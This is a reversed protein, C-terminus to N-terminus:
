CFGFVQVKVATGGKAQKGGSAGEAGDTKGGKAGGSGKGKPMNLISRCFM